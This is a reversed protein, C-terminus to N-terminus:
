YGLACGDKRPDSGGILVGRQHDVWIAQAGGLPEATATLTHGLASLARRTRDSIGREVQLHAPDPLFRPCDIASQIDMGYDFLNTLLWAQGFPQYHGGMVGYTLLPKNDRTLMGPLITHMPRREPGLANPHTPDLSFSYGRNHLVVGTVPCVLGSGFHEFTSNIFSCANGDRDVVSVYVTDKHEPLSARLSPVDSPTLSAGIPEDRIRASLSRLYSASLLTETPVPHHRPDGLLADRDRYVLRGAQAYRHLRRVDLPDSSVPPADDLIGLLMLVLIGSSNPPCQWVEHDRWTRHVPKVFEIATRMAAFDQAQHLGGHAALLTLLHQAIDGEYFARAGHTAIRGLTRALAPQRFVDGPRPATGEPLFSAAGTSQLKPVAHAWDYAVRPTVVFGEEAYHIAPQLLEDLGKRGHAALLTEWAAVAGPVTVTHPSTPTLATIGQASLADITLRKPARGSGNMAIVPGGVPHYLCFCDGGLGTSQPEIVGLLATAAIAADLANGGSKLVDLAVWTATPVSTAAMANAAYAPSRGPQEFDRM